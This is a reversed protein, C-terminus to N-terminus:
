IYNEKEKVERERQVMQVSEQGINKKQGYIPSGTNIRTDVNRGRLFSGQEKLGERERSDGLGVSVFRAGTKRMEIKM